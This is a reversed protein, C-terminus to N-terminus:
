FIPSPATHLQSCLPIVRKRRASGCFFSRAPERQPTKRVQQLSLCGATQLSTLASRGVAAQMLAVKAIQVGTFWLNARFACKRVQREDMMTGGWLIGLVRGAGDGWRERVYGEVVRRRM